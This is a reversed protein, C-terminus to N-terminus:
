VAGSKEGSGTLDQLDTVLSAMAPDLVGCNARVAAANNQHTDWGGLGVEVRV